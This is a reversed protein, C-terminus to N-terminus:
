RIQQLITYMPMVVSLAVFGVVLAVFVILLPEIVTMMQKTRYDLDDDMFDSALELYNSLTGTEEGVKVMQILLPSFLRVSVLPGTIGEGALLKDRLPALRRKYATNVVGAVCIDVAKVVPVGARLLIALTRAFRTEIGLASLKGTLPMVLQLRHLIRAVPGVNRALFLVGVITTLIAVTQPGYSGGFAGLALLIKTPLPLQADYDAFLAVFSPLVVIILLTVVIVALGLVM